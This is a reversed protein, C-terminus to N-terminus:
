PDFVPFEDEGLEPAPPERKPATGPKPQAAPEKREEYGVIELRCNDFYYNGPKWYAYLQVQLFQTKLPEKGLTSKSESPHFVRAYRRWQGDCPDLQMPARYADRRVVESGNRTQMRQDFFGKVFVRPVGEAEARADVSFRYVAGPAIPIYDSRYHVGHLAAVTDFYPPNTAIRQPPGPRPDRALAQPIGGAMALARDVAARVAQDHKLWQEDQLDTYVRLCRHGETGGSVVFTSFEDTAQWGYPWYRGNEFGGNTLLNRSLAKMRMVDYSEENDYPVGDPAVMDARGAAEKDAGGAAEAPEKSPAVSAPLPPAQARTGAPITLVAVALLAAAAALTRQSV